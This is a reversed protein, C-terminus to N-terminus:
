KKQRGIKDIEDNIKKQKGPPLTLTIEELALKILSLESRIERLQKGTEKDV